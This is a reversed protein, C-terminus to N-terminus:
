RSPEGSFVIRWFLAASISAAVVDVAVYPNAFPNFLDAINISSARWPLFQMIANTLWGIVVGPVLFCVLSRIRCHKFILWAPVGLVFASIYAIPLAYAFYFPLAIVASGVSERDRIGVLPLLGVALAGAIPSVLFALVIRRPNM